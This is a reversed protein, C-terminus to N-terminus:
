FYETFGCKDCQYEDQHIPPMSALMKGGLMNIRMNGGCKLCPYIPDSWQQFAQPEIKRIEETAKIFADRSNYLM